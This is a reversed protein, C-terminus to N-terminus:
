QSNLQKISSASSKALPVYKVDKELTKITSKSFTFTPQSFVPFIELVYNKIETVSLKM